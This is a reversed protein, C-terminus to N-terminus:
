FGCAIAFRGARSKGKKQEPSFFFRGPKGEEWIRRYFRRRRRTKEGKKRKEQHCVFSLPLDGKGGRGKRLRFAGLAVAEKRGKKLPFFSSKDREGGRKGRISFSFTV